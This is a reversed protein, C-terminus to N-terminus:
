TVTIDVVPDLTGQFITGSAIIGVDYHGATTNTPLRFSASGIWYDNVNLSVTKLGIGGNAVEMPSWPVAVMEVQVSWSFDSCSYSYCAPAPSSVLTVQVYVTDGPNYTTTDTSLCFGTDSDCQSSAHVVGIITSLMFCGLLLVIAKPKNV